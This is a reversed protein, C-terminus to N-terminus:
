GACTASQVQVDSDYEWCGHTTVHEQFVLGAAECQQRAQEVAGCSEEFDAAAAIPRSLVVVAEAYQRAAIAFQEGLNRKIPCCTQLAPTTATEM